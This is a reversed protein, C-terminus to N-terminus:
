RARFRSRRSARTTARTRARRRAPEGPHLLGEARRRHAAHSYWDTTWEWVNGIMDHLGYGNPPFATVPSTREFGDACLNQRPFEGQWTNAMHTGGPTFEDGWAFDAGDLGGRAAFEWEAETPLEKGAWRAYALADAIARRARGSSQRARQHQEEPRLSAALRRGEPVDVMRELQAPRGAAAAAIFVLSGAYLM